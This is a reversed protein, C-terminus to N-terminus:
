LYTHVKPVILYALTCPINDLEASAELYRYIRYSQTVFHIKSKCAKGLFLFFWYKGM